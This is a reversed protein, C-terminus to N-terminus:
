NGETVIVNANSAISGICTILNSPALNPVWMQGPLIKVGNTTTAASTANCVIYGTADNNQISLYRRTYNAAIVTSSANTVTVATNTFTSPSPVQGQVVAPGSLLGALAVLVRSKFSRPM